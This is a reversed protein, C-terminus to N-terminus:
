ELMGRVWRTFDPAGYNQGGMKLVRGSYEKTTEARLFREVMMNYESLYVGALQTDEQSLFYSSLMFWAIAEHL